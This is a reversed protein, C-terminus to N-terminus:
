EAAQEEIEVLPQGGTVQEGETVHIATVVGAIKARVENEMKMAVVVAVTQKVAVTDGVAVPISSVQGPMPSAVVQHGEIDGGEEGPRDPVLVPPHLLFSRGNVGVHIEGGEGRAIVARHVRGDRVLVLTGDELSTSELVFPEGGDIRAKGTADLSVTHSEGEIRFESEV